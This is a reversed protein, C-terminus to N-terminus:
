YLQKLQSCVTNIIQGGKDSQFQWLMVGAHWQGENYARVIANSLTQQDMYGTNTADSTTAPKGVVIKELPVGKECIEKVSTGPFYAGSSVFLKEYTDYSTNGQNYFQVNYFDILNGVQRHVNVYGGNKYKETSFYPAQPAHTIIHNPIMSRLKQTFTILWQEGTGNEM